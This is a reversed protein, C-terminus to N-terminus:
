EDTFESLVKDVFWAPYQKLEPNLKLQEASQIEALFSAKQNFFGESLNPIFHKEISMLCLALASM